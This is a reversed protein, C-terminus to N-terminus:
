GKAFLATTAITKAADPNHNMQIDIDHLEGRTCAIYDDGWTITAGMKELLDAFRIQGQKSKRGIGTEKVTGGNIAGAALFY